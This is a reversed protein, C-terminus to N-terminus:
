SSGSCENVCLNKNMLTDFCVKIVMDKGCQGSVLFITGKRMQCIPSTMRLVSIASCSQEVIPKPHMSKVM